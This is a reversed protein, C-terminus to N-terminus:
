VVLGNSRVPDIQVPLSLYRRDMDFGHTVSALRVFSVKDIGPRPLPSGTSLIVRFSTVYPM